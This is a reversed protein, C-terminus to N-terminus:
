YASFEHVSLLTAPQIRNRGFTTGQKTAPLEGIAPTVAQESRQESLSRPEPSDAREQAIEAGTVAVNADATFRIPADV